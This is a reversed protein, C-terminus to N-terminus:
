MFYTRPIGSRLGAIGACHERVGDWSGAHQCVSSTSVPRPLDLGIDPQPPFRVPPNPFRPRHFRRECRTGHWRLGTRNLDDIGLHGGYQIFSGIGTVVKGM